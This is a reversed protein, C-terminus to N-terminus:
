VHLIGIQTETKKSLNLFYKKQFQHFLRDSSDRKLLYKVLLRDIALAVQRIKYFDAKCREGGLELSVRRSEEKITHKEM